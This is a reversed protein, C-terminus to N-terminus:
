NTLNIPLKIFFTTGINLKSEVWIKGKHHEIINKAAFLGLGNGSGDKKIAETGRFFKTFIKEQDKDGIGIGTDRISIEVDKDQENYKISIFIKDDRDEYKIANEILNQFVVRLMEEDGVMEPINKNSKLFILEVSKKHAESSFEFIVQDILDVINLKQFNFPIDLEESHNLILLKNVLDIMRNSSILAKQMFNEQELTIEGLDRDIFMKLIWKLASLSTRLEHGSISILDSKTSSIRKLKINEEQLKEIENSM